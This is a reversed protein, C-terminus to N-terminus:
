LWDAWDGADPPMIRVERAAEGWRKALEGAARQGTADADAAITLAEVGGLLPLKALTGAAGCAWIPHLERQFLSIGTEVGECVVLGMTPEDFDSLMVVACGPRGTVTKGKKDRLRDSGDAKLFINIVGRQEGTRADSLACLLAPHHELEGIPSKRARRTAFRLVRGAPDDFYLSRACLYIEALTGAIPRAAQWPRRWRDPDPEPADSKQRAAPRAPLAATGDEIGLWRRSWRLAESTYVGIVAKVLDLADGSEGTAFDHWVGRNPGTLRVVLSSGPDGQVNGARWERGQRYGNPLLERVLVEIREALARAVDGATIM